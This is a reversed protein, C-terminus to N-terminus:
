RGPGAYTEPVILDITTREGLPLSSEDSYGYVGPRDPLAPTVGIGEMIDLLKPDPTVFVPNIAVDADRTTQMDVPGLADVVWFHVAHAGIVTIADCFDALARITDILLKRSSQVGYTADRLSVPRRQPPESFTTM